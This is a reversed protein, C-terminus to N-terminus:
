GILELLGEELPQFVKDWSYRERILGAGNRRLREWLPEDSLLRVIGEAFARPDDRVLLHEEDAVDIGEAGLTTSVVPLGWALSDLIKCRTGSGLRLPAISVSARAAIRDMSVPSACLEIGASAAGAREVASRVLPSPDRGALILRASPRRGRVKPWIEALLFEVADVNPLYALHGAFFVTEASFRAGRLFSAPDAGNPAVVTRGANSRRDM